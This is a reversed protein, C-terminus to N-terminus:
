RGLSAVGLYGALWDRFARMARGRHSVRDKPKPGLEAFTEDHGDPVFLPDYGFGSSGRPATLIRGECAGEFVERRAGLPGEPDAFAVTCRFRARRPEVVSALAALLKRNNRGDDRPEGAFRASFVGPAGGLASVELGSDDALCARGTRAVVQDVKQLANAAFTEGDERLDDTIGVEGLSRVVVPLGELLRALERVKGDNRSALVLELRRVDDSHAPM